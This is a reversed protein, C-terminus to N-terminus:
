LTEDAQQQLQEGYRFVYSLMIVLVGVLVNGLGIEGNIMVKGINESLFLESIDYMYFALNSGIVEILDIIIGSVIITIGLKKINTSVTGDFPQGAIMPVLVKRLVKILYCTVAIAILAMVLTTGMEIAMFSNDVIQPEAFILEVDGFSVSTLEAPPLQGLAGAILCIGVGVFIIIGGVQLIKYVVKLITDVTKSTKMLKEM